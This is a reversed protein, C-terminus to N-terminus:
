KKKKKMKTHEAIPCDCFFCEKYNEVNKYTHPKKSYNKYIDEQRYRCRVVNPDVHSYDAKKCKGQMPIMTALLLFVITNSKM